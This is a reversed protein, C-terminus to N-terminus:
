KMPVLITESYDSVHIHIDTPRPLAEGLAIM